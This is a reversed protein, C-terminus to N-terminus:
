MIILFFSKTATISKKEPVFTLLKENQRKWTNQAQPKWMIIDGDRTSLFM